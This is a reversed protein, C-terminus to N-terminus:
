KLLPIHPSSGKHVFLVLDIGPVFYAKSAGKNHLTLRPKENSSTGARERFTRTHLRQLRWLVPGTGASATPLPRRGEKGLQASLVLCTGLGHLVTKM